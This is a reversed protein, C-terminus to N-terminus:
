NITTSLNIYFSAEYYKVVNGQADNYTYDMQVLVNKHVNEVIVSKSAPDINIYKTGKYEMDYFRLFSGRVLMDNDKDNLKFPFKTGRPIKVPIVPITPDQKWPLPPFLVYNGVLEYRSNQPIVKIGDGYVHYDQKARHDANLIPICISVGNIQYFYRWDNHYNGPPIDSPFVRVYQNKSSTPVFKKVFDTWAPYNGQVNNTFYDIIDKNINMETSPWFSKPLNDQILEINKQIEKSAAQWEPLQFHTGKPPIDHLLFNLFSEISDKKGMLNSALQSFLTYADGSMKITLMAGYQQTRFSDTDDGFISYYAGSVSNNKYNKVTASPQSYSSTLSCSNAILPVILVPTVGLMKLLKLKRM